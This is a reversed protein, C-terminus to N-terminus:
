HKQKFIQKEQSLKLLKSAKFKGSNNHNNFASTSALDWLTPLYYNTCVYHKSIKEDFKPKFKSDYTSVHFISDEIRVCGSFANRKVYSYPAISTIPM